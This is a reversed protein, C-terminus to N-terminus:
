HVEGDTNDFSYMQSIRKFESEFKLILSDEDVEEFNFPIMDKVLKREYNNYAKPQSLYENLILRNDEYIGYGTSDLLLLNSQCLNDDLPVPKKAM